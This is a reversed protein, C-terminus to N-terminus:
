RFGMMEKVWGIPVEAQWKVHGRHPRRNNCNKLYDDLDERMKEVTEYWITRGKVRLHEELLM